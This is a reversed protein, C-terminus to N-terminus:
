CKLMWSAGEILKQQEMNGVDVTHHSDLLQLNKLSHSRSSERKSKEKMYINSLLKM